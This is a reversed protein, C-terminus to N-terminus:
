WPKDKKSTSFFFPSLSETHYTLEEPFSVLGGSHVGTIFRGIIVMAPMRCARSFGMLAGGIFVLVTARVLTGKRRPSVAMKFPFVNLLLDSLVAACVLRGYRTVLRSVLLAGVMGGIAFISVTLSYLVTISNEDPISGYEDVLTENYFNKIYQHFFVFCFM